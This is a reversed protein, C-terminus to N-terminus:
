IFLEFNASMYKRAAAEMNKEGKLKSGGMGENASIGRRILQFAVCSICSSNSSPSRIIVREEEKTRRRKPDGAAFPSLPPPPPPARSFFSPPPLFSLSLPPPFFFLFPPFPFSSSIKSGSTSKHEPSLPRSPPFPPSFSPGEGGKYPPRPLLCSNSLHRLSSGTRIPAGKVRPGPRGPREKGGGSSALMFKRWGTTLTRIVHPSKNRRLGGGRGKRKRERERGRRKGRGRKREGGSEREREREEEEEM